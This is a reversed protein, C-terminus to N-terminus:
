GRFHDWGLPKATEVCGDRALRMDPAAEMRGVVHLDIGLDDRVGALVDALRAEPVTCLLVYDEGGSGAWGSPDAGHLARAAAQAESIPLAGTSGTWSEDAVVDEGDIRQAFRVRVKADAPLGLLIESAPGAPVARAPTSRWPEGDLAGV